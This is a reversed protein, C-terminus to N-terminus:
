SPMVQRSSPDGRAMRELNVGQGKQVMENSLAQIEKTTQVQRDRAEIAAPVSEAYRGMWYAMEQEAAATFEKVDGSGANCRREIVKLVRDIIEIRTLAVSTTQGHNQLDVAAANEAYLLRQIEAQVEAPAPKLKPDPTM